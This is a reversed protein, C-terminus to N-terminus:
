DNWDENESFISDIVNEIVGSTIPTGIVSGGDKTYIDPSKGTETANESFTNDGNLRLIKQNNIAGGFYKAYNKSLVCDTLVTQNGNYIAGGSHTATNEQLTVGELKVTGIRM